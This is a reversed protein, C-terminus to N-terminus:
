QYAPSCNPCPPRYRRLMTLGPRRPPCLPACLPANHATRLCNHRRRTKLRPSPMQLASVSHSPHPAPPTCATVNTYDRESVTSTWLGMIFNASVQVYLQISVCFVAIAMFCQGAKRAYFRYTELSM